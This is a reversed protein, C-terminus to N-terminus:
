LAAAGAERRYLAGARWFLLAGALLMVLSALLAYRLSAAGAPAFWDSLLGISLPGAGCGILNTILSLLALAQARQAPAVLNQVAAYIPGIWAAVLFANIPIFLAAVPLTLGGLQWRQQQPWLLFAALVPLSLLVALAPIRLQWVRDRRVMRDCFWGGCVAGALGGLSSGVGLMLGAHLLPVDHVRVLFSPLWTAFGYGALSALAAALALLRYARGRLIDRLTILLPPQAAAIIRPPEAVTYRVVLALALGPLGLGIFALRWGFYHALVAGGFLGLCIGLQTGTAYIGLVTSRQRPPYYDALLAQSAPTGGAEGVAVGVRAAALAWFSTALGCAATMLSWLAISVAIVTRRSGRDALRAIPVGLTAYFLVFALGALMGMATDSAGFEAKVPELLITMLQRDAFSFTFALTLIVLVYGSYTRSYRRGLAGAGASDDGAEKELTLMREGM